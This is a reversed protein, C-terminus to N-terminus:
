RYISSVFSARPKAEPAGGLRNAGVAGVSGRHQDAALALGAQDVLEELACAGPTAAHQSEGALHSCALRCEEVVGVHHGGSHVNQPGPADLDSARM